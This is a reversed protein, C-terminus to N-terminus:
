DLNKYKGTRRHYPRFTERSWTAIWCCQEQCGSRGSPLAPVICCSAPRCCTLEVIDLFRGHELCYLTRIIINTTLNKRIGNFLCIIEVTFISVISYLSDCFLLWLRNRVEFWVDLYMRLLTVLYLAFALIVATISLIPKIDLDSPLLVTWRWSLTPLLHVHKCAPKLLWFPSRAQPAYYRLDAYKKTRESPFNIWRLIYKYFYKRNVTPHTQRTFRNSVLDIIDEQSKSLARSRSGWVGESGSAEIIICL